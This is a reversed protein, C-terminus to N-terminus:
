LSNFYGFKSIAKYFQGGDNKKNLAVQMWIKSYWAVYKQSILMNNWNCLHGIFIIVDWNSM